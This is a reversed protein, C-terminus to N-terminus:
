SGGGVLFVELVKPFGEFADTPLRYFIVFIVFSHSLKLAIFIGAEAM